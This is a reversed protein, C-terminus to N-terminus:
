QFEPMRPTLVTLSEDALAISLINSFEAALRPTGMASYYKRQMELIASGPTPEVLHKPQYAALVRRQGSWYNATFFQSGCVFAPLTLAWFSPELGLRIFLLAAEPFCFFNPGDPMGHLALPDGEKEEHVRNTAIEGALFHALMAEFRRVHFPRASSTPPLASVIATRFVEEVRKALATQRDDEAIPPEFPRGEVAWSARHLVRWCLFTTMTEIDVAASREGRHRLATPDTREDIRCMAEASERLAGKLHKAIRERRLVYLDFTHPDAQPEPQNRTM